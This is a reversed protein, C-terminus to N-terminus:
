QSYAIPHVIPNSGVVGLVVVSYVAPCAALYGVNGCTLLRPQAIIVASLRVQACNVAGAESGSDSM